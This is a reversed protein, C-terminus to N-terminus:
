GELTLTQTGADFGSVTGTIETTEIIGLDDLIQKRTGMRVDFVARPEWTTDIKQPADTLLEVARLGWGESALYDRVSYKELSDRLDEMRQVASRPDSLTDEYATISVVVERDFQVVAEGSENVPGYYARGVRQVNLVQLTIYPKDPRPANPNMWIVPLGTENVVWQRLADTM